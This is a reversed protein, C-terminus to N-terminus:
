PMRRTYRWAWAILPLQLPLRLWLIWAPITPSHDAHLAMNWNAPMVAVLLAVLGWAALKRSRPQLLGLGGLIECVGSVQVLLRPEPLYNPVMGVYVPTLVFHLTGAVIFLVALAFRGAM